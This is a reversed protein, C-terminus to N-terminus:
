KLQVIQAQEWLKGADKRKHFTGVTIPVVGRLGHISELSAAYYWGAGPGPELPLSNEKAWERAERFTGALVLWTKNAM